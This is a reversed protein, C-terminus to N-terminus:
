IYNPHYIVDPFFWSSKSRSRRKHKRKTKKRKRTWLRRKRTKRRRKRTKRRKVLKESSMNYM